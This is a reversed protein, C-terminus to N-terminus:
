LDAVSHWSGDGHYACYQEEGCECERIM